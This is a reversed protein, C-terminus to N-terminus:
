PNGGNGGFTLADDYVPTLCAGPLPPLANHDMGTLSKLSLLSIPRDGAQIFRIEGDKALTDYTAKFYTNALVGGSLVSTADAMKIKDIPKKGDDELLPIPQGSLTLPSKTYGLLLFQGSNRSLPVFQVVVATFSGVIQSGNNARDAMAVAIGAQDNYAYKAVEFNLGVFSPNDKEDIGDKLTTLDPGTTIRLGLPSIFEKPKNNQSM